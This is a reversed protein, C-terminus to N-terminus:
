RSWAAWSGDAVREPEADELNQIWVGDDAAYVFATSDPSWFSVSQAYQPFFPLMTEAVVPSPRHVGFDEVGSGETWVSLGLAVGEPELILLSEGDPSWFFGLAPDDTVRESEGTQTDLIELGTWSAQVELLGVSLGSDEGSSQVAIRTGQPNAVFLTFDEVDALSQREGSTDQLVLEGDAVHLIGEDTWQPALYGPDTEGLGARSGTLGISTFTDAGAHAAIEDSGPSWSFYFPAAQGLVEASGAEVDVMVFDIGNAGNHLVGIHQGGPSWYSYFPLNTMPVSTPEGAGVEIVALSFGDPGAQGWALSEGDPSWVPQALVTGGAGSDAVVERDSGDPALVIVDGADDVVVLRGPGQASDATTASPETASCGAIVVASAALVKIRNM